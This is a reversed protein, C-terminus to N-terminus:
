PEAIFDLDALADNVSVARPAFSYRKSHVGVVYTEGAAINEFTYYGFSSSVALRTEGNADTLTLRAGKIPRGEATLVRGSVTVSAASTLFQRVTVAGLAWNEPNTTTWSMTVVPSAGPETSGAGVDLANGFFGQGDWRETQNAGVAAFGAAPAIALTDLVIDGSVADTVAVTPTNSNGSGAFFAGNPTTQSVGEFSVAGGVAYNVIPNGAGPVIEFTVVIQRNGSQQNVLVFIESTQRFDPSIATGIRALATGGYTVSVVRNTPAGIPLNTTATSVGVFVARNAGGDPTQHTWSISSLGTTGNFAGQSSTNSVTVVAHAAQFAFFLISFLLALRSRLFARLLYM